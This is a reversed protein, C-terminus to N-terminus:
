WRFQGYLGIEDRTAQGAGLNGIQLMGDANDRKYVLALDVIKAPSFQIGANFYRDKQIPNLHKNPQVWDYRGFVSWKPAPQVSAFISYGEAADSEVTNVHTWNKAFFYEGGISYGVNGAKGKYGLLADFRSATHPAYGGQVDKGLKGTYGGVAAQIGKYAVSVRGELDITKTFQPNRYGAGNVASVQYNVIGNALSGMVHVGWDASNGEHDLDTITNEIHRYGYVGEVYPIWPMDASGLRVIAAKSFRAQLFAKKIFLTQGVGGIQRVDTTINGSLTNNFKHDIGVYFRKIQFGGDKEVNNGNEDDASVSSVNFYMRGSVKTDAAWKVADALVPKSAKDSAVEAKSQAAVATTQATSAQALAQDAKQSAVKTDAAVQSQAAATQDMRAKLADLQAQLEAIQQQATKLQQEVSPAQEHTRAMAAHPVMMAGAIAALAISKHNQM